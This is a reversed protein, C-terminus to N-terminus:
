KIIKLLYSTSSFNGVIRFGIKRYLSLALYNDKLCSLEFSTEKNPITYNDILSKIMKTAFGNRRLRKLVNLDHMFITRSYKDIWVKYELSALKIYYEDRISVVESEENLFLKYNKNDILFIEKLM